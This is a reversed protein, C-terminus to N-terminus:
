HSMNPGCQQTHRPPLIPAVRQPFRPNSAHFSMHGFTAQCPMWPTSMPQMAGQTSSSALTAGDLTNAPLVQSTYPHTHDIIVNSTRPHGQHSSGRIEPHEQPTSKEMQPAWSPKALLIKMAENHINM